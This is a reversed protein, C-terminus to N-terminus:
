HFSAFWRGKAEIQRGVNEVVGQRLFFVKYLVCSFPSIDNFPARLSFIISWRQFICYIHGDSWKRGQLFFNLFPYIKSQKPLYSKNKSYGQDPNAIDTQSDMSRLYQKLDSLFIPVCILCRFTFRETQKTAKFKLNHINGLYM